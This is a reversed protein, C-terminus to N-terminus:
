CIYSHLIRSTTKVPWLPQAGALSMQTNCMHRSLAAQQPTVEAHRKSCYALSGKGAARPVAPVHQQQRGDESLAEAHPGVLLQNSEASDQAAAAEPGDAASTISPGTASQSAAIPLQEAANAPRTSPSEAAVSQLVAQAEHSSAQSGPQEAALVPGAGPLTSPLSLEVQHSSARAAVAFAPQLNSDAVDVDAVQHGSDPSSEAAQQTLPLPTLGLEPAATSPAALTLADSVCVDSALADPVSPEPLDHQTSFNLQSPESEDSCTLAVAIHTNRLPTLVLTVPKAHQMSVTDPASPQPQAALIGAALAAQFASPTMTPEYQADNDELSASPTMMLASPVLEDLRYLDGAAETTSADSHWSAVSAVDDTVLQESTAKVQRIDIGAHSLCCGHM